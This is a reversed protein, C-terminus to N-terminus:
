NALFIRCRLLDGLGRDQLRPMEWAALSRSKRCLPTIDDRVDALIIRDNGVEM